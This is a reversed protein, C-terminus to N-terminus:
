PTFYKAKIFPFYKIGQPHRTAKNLSVDGRKAYDFM